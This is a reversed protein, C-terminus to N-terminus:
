SYHEELFSVTAIGTKRAPNVMTYSHGSQLNNM